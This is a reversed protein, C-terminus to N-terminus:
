PLAKGAASAKARAAARDLWPGLWMGVSLAASVAGWCLLVNALELQGNCAAVLGPMALMWAAVNLLARAGASSLNM